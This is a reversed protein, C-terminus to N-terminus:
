YSVHGPGKGWAKRVPHSGSRSGALGSVIRISSSLHTGQEAKRVCAERGHEPQGDHPRTLDHFGGNPFHFCLPKQIM